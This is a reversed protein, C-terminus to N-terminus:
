DHTPSRIAARVFESITRYEGSKIKREIEEFMKDSLEVNLRKMRFRGMKASKKVM